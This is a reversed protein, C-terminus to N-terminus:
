EGYGHYREDVEKACIKRHSFSSRLSRRLLELGLSSQKTALAGRLSLVYGATM